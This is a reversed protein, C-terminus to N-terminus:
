KQKEKPLLSLIADNVRLLLFSAAKIEEPDRTLELVTTLALQVNQAAELAESISSDGAFEALASKINTM